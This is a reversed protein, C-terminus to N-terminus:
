RSAVIPLRQESVAGSVGTARISVATAKRELVVHENFSGDLQVPIREGNVTVTVGLETHGKVHLQTGRLEVVDLVLQPPRLVGAEAKLLSFCWASAFGGETGSADIASVKWCYTGAELGPLALVTSQDVQLDILPSAFATGSDVVVRYSMAGAVSAWALLTTAQSPDPYSMEHLNPPATLIPVDPLRLKPGAKGEADIEVGEGPGLRLEQGTRSDVRGKGEVFRFATKGNPAVQINGKTKRDPTARGGPTEIKREGAQVPTQFDAEGSQIGLGVHPQRSLLDQSNQLVTITSDPRVGFLTGDSFRIEAMANGVTKVLDDKQLTMALTADIWQLTGARKVQVRGKLSTFRVGMEVAKQPPSPERRGCGVFLGSSVAGAALGAGFLFLSRYSM